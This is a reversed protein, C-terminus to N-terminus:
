VPHTLQGINNTSRGEFDGIKVDARVIKGIIDGADFRAPRNGLSCGLAADQLMAFNKKWGDPDTADSKSQLPFYMFLPFGEKVPKDNKDTAVTTTTLKLKANFGTKAKNEEKTIAEVRLDYLGATLVPITTDVQSLDVDLILPEQNM